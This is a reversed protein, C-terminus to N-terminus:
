ERDELLWEFQQKNHPHELMKGMFRRSPEALLRGLPPALIFTSDKGLPRHIDHNIADIRSLLSTDRLEGGLSQFVYGPRLRFPLNVTLFTDM